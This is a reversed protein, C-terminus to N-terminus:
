LLTAEPPKVRQRYRAFLFETYSNMALHLMAGKSQIVFINHHQYKRAYDPM